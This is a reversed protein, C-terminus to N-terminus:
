AAQALAASASSAGHGASSRPRAPVSHEHGAALPERPGGTIIAIPVFAM